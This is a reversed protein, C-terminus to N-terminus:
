ESTRLFARASDSMTVIAAGFMICDKIILRGTGSLFPFGTQMRGPASVWAEPTTLLFSLTVCSMGVLLFSGLASIGPAIPRLAIMLGLAIIVIGLGHSVPYTGNGEHWHQHSPIIEGEKNMYQRYEPAPHHYLFSAIPSNAILPVISDAEYDAFKLSGIWLLVLVLACRLVTIGVSQLNVAYIMLRQALSGQDRIYRRRGDESFVISM